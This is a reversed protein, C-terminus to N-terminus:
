LHWACGFGLVDAFVCVALSFSDPSIEQIYVKAPLKMVTQGM